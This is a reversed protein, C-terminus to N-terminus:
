GEVKEIIEEPRVVFDPWGHYQSVAVFDAMVRTVPRIAKRYHSRTPSKFKIRDGPKLDQIEQYTM